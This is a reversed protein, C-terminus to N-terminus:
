VDEEIGALWRLGLFFLLMFTAKDWNEALAAFVMVILLGAYTLRAIWDTVAKM